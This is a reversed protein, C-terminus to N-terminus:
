KKGETVDNREERMSERLIEAVGNGFNIERRIKRFLKLCHGYWLYVQNKQLIWGFSEKLGTNTIQFQRKFQLKYTHHSSVYCLTNEPIIYVSIHILVWITVDELGDM